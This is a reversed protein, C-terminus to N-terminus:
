QNKKFAYSIKLRRDQTDFSEIIQSVHKKLRATTKKKKKKSSPAEISFTIEDM